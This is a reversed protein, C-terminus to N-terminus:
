FTYGGTLMLCSIQQKRTAQCINSSNNDYLDYEPESSLCRLIISASGISIGAGVGFGFYFEPPFPSSIHMSDSIFWQGPIRTLLVGLQGFGLVEVKPWANGRVEWGTLLWGLAWNKLNPKKPRNVSLNVSSMWAVNPSLKKSFDVGIVYGNKAMGAKSGDGDGFEDIPISSGAFLTVGKTNPGDTIKKVESMSYAYISGDATQIKLGSDPIFEVIKGKIISGNKLYVVDQALIQAPCVVLSLAIVALLILLLNRM